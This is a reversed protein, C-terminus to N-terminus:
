IESSSIAWKSVKLRNRYKIKENMYDDKDEIKKSM